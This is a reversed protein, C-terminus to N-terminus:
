KVPARPLPQLYQSFPVNLSIQENDNENFYQIRVELNETNLEESKTPNVQRWQTFLTM